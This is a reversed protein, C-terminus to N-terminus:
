SMCPVKTTSRRGSYRLSLEYLKENLTEIEERAGADVVPAKEDFYKGTRRISPLVESTVWHKFQKATPLKSGLILAYLGSENILWTGRQGFELDFYGQAKSNVRDDGDVHDVITHNIDTYGLEKAVDRGVFYPEHNIEVTRIQGFKENKFIQLENM